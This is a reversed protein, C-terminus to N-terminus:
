SQKKPPFTIGNSAFREELAIGIERPVSRRNKAAIVKLCDYYTRELRVTWCGPKRRPLSLQETAKPDLSMFWAVDKESLAFWEGRGRKDAFRQHM